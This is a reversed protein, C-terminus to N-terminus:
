DGTTTKTNVLQIIKNHGNIYSNYLKCLNDPIIENNNYIDTNYLNKYGIIHSREFYFVGTMYEHTLLQLENGSIYIEIVDSIKLYDKTANLIKGVYKGGSTILLLPVHLPFYLM